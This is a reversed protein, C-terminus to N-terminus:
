STRILSSFEVPVPEQEFYTLKKNDVASIRVRAHVAGDGAAM